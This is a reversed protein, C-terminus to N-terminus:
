ALPAQDDEEVVALVPQGNVLALVPHGVLVHGHEQPPQDVGQVAPALQQKGAAVGEIGQRRPPQAALHQLDVQPLQAPALCHPQHSRQRHQPLRAVRCPQPDELRHPTVGEHQVQESFTRRPVPYLVDQGVHVTHAALRHALEQQVLDQLGQALCRPAQQLPGADQAARRGALRQFGQGAGVADTVRQLLQQAPPQHGLRLEVVLQTRLRLQAVPHM